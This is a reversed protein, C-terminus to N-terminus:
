NSPSRLRVFFDTFGRMFEDVSFKSSPELFNEIEKEIKEKDKGCDFIVNLWKKYFNQDLYIDLSSIINDRLAKSMLDTIASKTISGDEMVKPLEKDVTAMITETSKAGSEELLKKYEKVSYPTIRNLPIKVGEIIEYIM